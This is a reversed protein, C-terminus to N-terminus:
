AEDPQEGQEGIVEDLAAIESRIADFRAKYQAIYNSIAASIDNAEKLKEDRIQLLAQIRDNIM